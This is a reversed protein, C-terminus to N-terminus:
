SNDTAESMPPRNLGEQMRMFHISLKLLLMYWGFNSLAFRRSDVNIELSALPQSHVADLPVVSEGIQGVFEPLYFMRHIEQRRVLRLFERIQNENEGSEGLMQCYLALNILPAFVIRQDAAPENSRQLDCSNSLVLGVILDRAGTNFDIVTLPRWGDGQLPDDIGHIASFYNAPSGRDSVHDRIQELLQAKSEAALFPPLSLRVKEFYNEEVTM